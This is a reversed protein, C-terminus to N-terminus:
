RNRVRAIKPVIHLSSRLYPQFFKRYALITNIEEPKLYMTYGYCM